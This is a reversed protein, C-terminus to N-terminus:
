QGDGTLMVIFTKFFLTADLKLSWTDIYKMDMKMWQDFPINNRGSVQWICTIGPKMSLRRRQWREYQAVEEPIPPRPGVISMDGFLVNLFQPLEDLSTKRLFNGTKTVRPDKKIKFVPGEQENLSMLDAKLSEANTVMTRFKLCDFIRGYLGVRKQKFFVPGGDEIKICIAIGIMVPSILLVILLAVIFDLTNKVKLALYNRPTKMFTLFPMQSFSDLNADSTVRNLLTSQVRFVVGVEGCVHVLDRIEEADSNVKCYMVEDINKADIVSAVKHSSSLVNYSDGYKEKIIESDTLITHLCYGWDRQELFKDIFYASDDDAIIVISRTNRGKTRIFKMVRFLSIKYSALVLINLGLFIVFVTTPLYTLELLSNAVGLMFVGIVAIFIYDLLIARYKKMRVMKGMGFHGLLVYWLPILLVVITKYDSLVGSIPEIYHSTCYISLLFCLASLVVQMVISIRAITPEREKIM